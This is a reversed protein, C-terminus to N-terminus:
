TYIFNWSPVKTLRSQFNPLSWVFVQILILPISITFLYFNLPISPFWIMYVRAFLIVCIRSAWSVGNEHKKDQGLQRVESFCTYLNPSYIMSDGKKCVM